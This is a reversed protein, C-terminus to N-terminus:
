WKSQGDLYRDANWLSLDGRLINFLLPLEEIGTIHLFQELRTRPANHGNRTVSCPVTRFKLLITRCRGDLRVRETRCLVPGPSNLKIALAVVAMLPLVLAILICTVLVELARRM